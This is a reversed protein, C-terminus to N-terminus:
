EVRLSDTESGDRELLVKLTKLADIITFIGTIKDNSTKVLCSGYKEELMTTVVQRLDTNEDVVYPDPTMIDAACFKEAFERGEFVKLDRESIIGVPVYNRVVPIHRVKAEIMIQMVSALSEEGEVTLLFQSCFSSICLKKNM